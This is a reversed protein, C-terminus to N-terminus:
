KSEKLYEIARNLYVASDQFHGLGRNCNTCLLGRITNNDHNHDIHTNGGGSLPLQCIGCLGKQSLWLNNFMELSINYTFQLYRKRRSLIVEPKHKNKEHWERGKKNACEKCYFARGNGRVNGKDRHFSENPKIKECLSCEKHTASVFRFPTYKNAM